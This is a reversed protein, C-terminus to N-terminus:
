ETFFSVPNIPIEVAFEAGCDKCKVPAKLDSGWDNINEIKAAIKNVVPSPVAEIWETIMKSDTIGNVSEIVSLLMMILNRQQDEATVETKNENAKILDIVQQYKNPRLKVVQGNQLKVTYMQEVMTPDILTMGNILMDVDAVYSHNKAGECTHQVNFEYSPGYTVTRLMLMIADVDKSLLESPKLVGEVCRSFVTKVAAGSFLQDPNKMNIEDLASMPHIHIEGNQVTDALEGNKYFIGRSPLQFMRGPLKLGELLPNSNSM